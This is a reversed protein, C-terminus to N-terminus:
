GKKGKRSSDRVKPLFMLIVSYICIVVSGGMWVWDFTKIAIYGHITTWIVTIIAIMALWTKMRNRYRWGSEAHKRLRGARISETILGVLTLVVFGGLLLLEEFSTMITFQDIGFPTVTLKSQAQYFVKATSLSIINMLVHAYLLLFGLTYFANTTLSPKVHKM